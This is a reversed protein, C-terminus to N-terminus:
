TSINTHVKQKTTYDHLHYWRQITRAPKRLVAVCKWRTSYVLKFPISRVEQFTLTKYLTDIEESVRKFLQHFREARQQKSAKLAVSIEKEEDYIHSLRESIDKM